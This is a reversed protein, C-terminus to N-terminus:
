GNALPAMMATPQCQRLKTGTAPQEHQDAMHPRTATAATFMDALRETPEQGNALGVLGSVLLVWFVLCFLSEPRM